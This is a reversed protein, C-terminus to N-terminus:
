SIPYGWYAIASTTAVEQSRGEEQAKQQQKGNMNSVDTETAAEVTVVTVGKGATVDM